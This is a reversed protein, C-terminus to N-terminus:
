DYILKIEGTNLTVILLDNVKQVNDVETYVLEGVHNIISRADDNVIYYHPSLRVIEAGTFFLENGAKNILVNNEKVKVLALNDKFDGAQSYKYPIVGVLKTDVFGYKNKQKVRMLGNTPFGVEQYTGFNVFTVGNKDVLAQDDKKVLKFWKGDTYYEPVNERLYDYVVASLYCAESTYFGYHDNLILIFVNTDTKLIQDYEPELIKKGLANILGYKNNQKIIAIQDKSFDSIWEFEARHLAGNKSVFGYLGAETFYAHGCKFDGLKDFRPEILIQGFHDLTGYKNDIRVVYVDDSLENIEDYNKSISQGQRNIFFWKGNLKVPAIGNRFVLADSFVKSFPNINQKNIFYVSDNKSVVSLGEHFDTAADYKPRIAYKGKIDIFGIFDGWQYPYLVVKNLELEHLISNRLPFDPYKNVFRKLEDFSFENVSLSFLLKWAELTQHANPYNQVFFALGELDKKQRYLNFLNEHATKVMINKPYKKIFAIYNEPTNNSTNEDYLQREMLMFAEQYFGSQPHLNMFQQTTDSSNIELVKDFELGDRAYVAEQTLKLNALYYNKLFFDYASISNEKKVTQYRKQSVTDALSLITQDNIVFGSLTQSQSALLYQHFSLMVYKGASDLNYFPNDHRSFIIALGYSAYADPKKDNIQSFLKHAKFYDYINLAYFGKNLKSANVTLGSFLFVSSLVFIKLQLQV